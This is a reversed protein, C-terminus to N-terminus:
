RRVPRSRAAKLADSLLRDGRLCAYCDAAGHEGCGTAQAFKSINGVARSDAIDIARELLRRAESCETVNGVDIALQLASSARSYVPRTSLLMQAFEAVAGRNTQTVRFLLAPGLSSKHRAFGLQAERYAHPDAALKLLDRILFHDPQAPDMSVFREALEEAEQKTQMERGAVVAIADAFTRERASKLELQLLASDEGDAALAVLAQDSVAVLSSTRTRTSSEEPSTLAGTTGLEGTAAHLATVASKEVAGKSQVASSQNVGSGLAGDIDYERLALEETQANTALQQSRADSFWKLGFGALAGLGTILVVWGLKPALRPPRSATGYSGTTPHRLSPTFDARAHTPPDFPFPRPPALTAPDRLPHARQASYGGAVAPGNMAAPGSMAAPPFSSRHVVTAASPAAQPLATLQAATPAAGPFPLTTRPPSSPFSSHAAVEGPHVAGAAPARRPPPPPLSRPVPTEQSMEEWGPIDNRPVTHAMSSPTSDMRRRPPPPRRSAAGEDTDFATGRSSVPRRPAPPADSRRMVRASEPPPPYSAPPPDSASPLSRPPPASRPIRSGYQYVQSSDVPAPPPITSRHVPVPASAFQGKSRAAKSARKKSSMPRVVGM